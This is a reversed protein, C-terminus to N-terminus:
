LQERKLKNLNLKAIKIWHKEKKQYFKPALKSRTITQNFVEIAKNPQELKLLLLGFRVRGEEGPYTESLASYEELAQDFRQLKELSRAYLLHGDPSNYNPNLKITEDLTQMAMEYDQNAFYANALKVMINPDGEGVGKLCVQFLEIADTIMNADFCEEALKLKNDLTNALALQQKRKRLERQPDIAKILSNKATNITRSQGLDPLVQTFFYLGAGIGPLFMIIYVWYIERGTKVVHIAFAIQIILSLGILPM